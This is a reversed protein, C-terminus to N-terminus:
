WININFLFNISNNLLVLFVFALILLIVLIRWNRFGLVEGVKSCVFRIVFTLGLSSLIVWPLMFLARVFVLDSAAFLISLCVVFVLSLFFNSVESRFSVLVLFGMLLLVVLFQNAFVGGLVFDVAAKMGSVLYAPNPFGLSSKATTLVSDSSSGSSLLNRFVDILFGVGFTAGVLVTKGKFRGWLNRDRSALRWELFLFMALSLAFVFWTWSHSFLALVSVGLLGFFGLSSWKDLLKFFLVVYTFILILALMNAHYGSYILGLGHFSFPVILAGLVLVMRSSTFLRLVFVSVICLLVLLVAPAFQVISVIPFVFSFAYCLVLFVARDNSLAFSLASNVDVSRMQSIWTYYVPSDVSVIMGTPNSWPLVTFAVFLCSVVASVVVALVLVLRGRLFGFRFGWGMSLEFVSRLWDLVWGCKVRGVLWSWGGPLANFVFAVLGFLVFLLYVYPLFSYSLNAFGLEVGGWHLGLSGADLGLAVPVNFLVFSALEVFFGLALGGFFVRLCFVLRDVGFFDLSFIFCVGLLLGSLLVLSDLLVLGSVALIVWVVMGFIGILSGVVFLQHSDEVMKLKLKYVIWALVVFVGLGWVASDWFGTLINGSVTQEIMGRNSLVFFSLGFFRAGYFLSLVLSLGLSFYVVSLLWFKTQKMNDVPLSADDQTESKAVKM